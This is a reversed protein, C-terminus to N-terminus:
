HGDGGEAKPKYGVWTGAEQDEGWKETWDNPCISFAYSKFKDCVDSGGTKDVCLLWENYRTRCFRPM